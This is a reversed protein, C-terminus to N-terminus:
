YLIQKTISLVKETKFKWKCLHYNHHHVHFVTFAKVIHLLKKNIINMNCVLNDRSIHSELAITVRYDKYVDM